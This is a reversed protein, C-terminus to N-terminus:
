NASDPGTNRAIQFGPQIDILNQTGNHHILDSNLDAKKEQTARHDIGSFDFGARGYSEGEVTACGGAILAALLICVCVAKM